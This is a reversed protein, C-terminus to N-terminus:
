PYFYGGIVKRADSEKKELFDEKDADYPSYMGVFAEEASRFTDKKAESANNPIWIPDQRTRKEGIEFQTKPYTKFSPQLKRGKAKQDAVVLAAVEKDSLAKIGPFRRALLSNRFLKIDEVQIDPETSIIKGSAGASPPADHSSDSEM